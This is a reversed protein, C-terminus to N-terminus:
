RKVGPRDSKSVTVSSRPQSHQKSPACHQVDIPGTLTALAVLVQRLVDTEEVSMGEDLAVAEEEANYLRRRLIEIEQEKSLTTRALVNKPQGFISAPDNLAEELDITAM